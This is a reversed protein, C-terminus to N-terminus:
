ISQKVETFGMEFIQNTDHNIEFVMQQYDKGRRNKGFFCILHKKKPNLDVDVTKWKNDKLQYKKVELEHKNPMDNKDNKYENDYVKRFLMTVDAVEVVERGKAVSEHTLYKDKSGGIKLQVSATLSVNLNEPKILDYLAQAMDSFKEWRAQDGRKSSDPKFTDFLFHEYGLVAHKKILKTVDEFRYTKLPVLKISGEFTDEFEEIAELIINDDDDKFNGGMVNEKFVNKNGDRHYIQNAFAINLNNVWDKVSEENIFVIAKSNNQIFSTLFVNRLLTSKGLGSEAGILTFIGKAIGKVTRSLIPAKYIDMGVDLGAMAEKMSKRLLDGDLEIVDYDGNTVEATAVLYQHEINM